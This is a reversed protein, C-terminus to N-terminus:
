SFKWKQVGEHLEINANKNLDHTQFKVDTYQKYQGKLNVTTNLCM